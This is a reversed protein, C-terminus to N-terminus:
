QNIKEKKEKFLLITKGFIFEKILHSEKRTSTIKEATQATSYSIVQLFHIGDYIM